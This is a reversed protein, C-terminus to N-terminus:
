YGEEGLTDLPGTLDVHLTGFKHARDSRLHHRVAPCSTQQCFPSDKRKPAHGQKYDKELTGIEEM